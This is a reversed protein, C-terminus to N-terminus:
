EGVAVLKVTWRYSTGMIQATATGVGDKYVGDTVKVTLKKLSGNTKQTYIKFSGKFTKKNKNYSLKLASLNGNWDSVTLGKRKNYAIKVAKETTMKQKSTLEAGEPNDVTPLFQFLVSNGKLVTPFDATNEIYFALQAASETKKSPKDSPTDPVVPTDPNVTPVKSASGWKAVAGSLANRLDELRSFGLQEYFEDSNSWRKKAVFTFPNYIGWHPYGASSPMTRDVSADCYYVVFNANMESALTSIANKLDTCHPCWGTGTMIFLMKQQQQAATIATQLVTYANVGGFSVAKATLSLALAAGVVILKRNM